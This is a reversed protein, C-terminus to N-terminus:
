LSTNECCAIACDVKARIRKGSSDLPILWEVINSCSNCSSTNLLGVVLTVIIM